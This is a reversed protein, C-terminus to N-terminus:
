DLDEFTCCPRDFEREQREVDNLVIGFTETYANVHSVPVSFIAADSIGDNAGTEQECGSLNLCSLTMVALFSRRTALNRISETYRGLVAM